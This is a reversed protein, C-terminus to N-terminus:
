RDKNDINDASSHSVKVGEQELYRMLVDKIGIGKEAIFESVKQNVMTMYNQDMFSKKESLSITKQLENLLLSVFFSEFNQCAKEAGAGVNKEKYLMSQVPVADLMTKM